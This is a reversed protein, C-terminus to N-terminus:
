NRQCTHSSMRPASTAVGGQWTETHRYQQPGLSITHFATVDHPASPFSSRATTQLWGVPIDRLPNTTKRKRKPTLRQFFSSKSEPVADYVAMGHTTFHWSMTYRFLLYVYYTALKNNDVLIAEPIEIRSSLSEAEMRHLNELDGKPVFMSHIRQWMERLVGLGHQLARRDRLYMENLLGTAPSGAIVLYEFLEVSAQDSFVICRRLPTM